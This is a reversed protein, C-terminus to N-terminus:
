HVFRRIIMPMTENYMSFTPYAQFSCQFPPTPKFLVNFLHPLSSFFMSFIKCLAIYLPHATCVFLHATAIIKTRSPGGQVRVTGGRFRMAFRFWKKPVALKIELFGKKLVLCPSRLGVQLGEFKFPQMEERRKLIKFPQVYPQAGGM